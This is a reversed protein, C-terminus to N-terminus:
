QTYYITAVIAGVAALLYMRRTARKDFLMVMVFMFVILVAFPM